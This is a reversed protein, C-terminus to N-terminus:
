TLPRSNANDMIAEWTVPGVIGDPNLGNERQFATVADLTQNGFIGDFAGVNYLKSYLKRQLYKVEAGYSGRRLVRNQPNFNNLKEWTAPGVIGDATLGNARQFSLVANETQAGFVGDVSGLNYGEIKLMFQLYRVFSGRSGRRLVPYRTEQPTYYRVNLFTCVGKCAAQGINRQNDPDIMLKAENFNTMFGCEVLAAITRVSSLMGVDLNGVGRGRLGTVALIEDYVNFALTRSQAPQVNLSSYFAEIGGANNFTQGDGFANYAFTLVLTPLVRNIAAVRASISLDQRNPKVDFIFFGIRLCDALFWNKAAFNFENEYIQRDIYPMMPTRKGPTAPMVGHEDNGAILFDSANNYAM